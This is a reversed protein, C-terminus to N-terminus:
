GYGIVLLVGNQEQYLVAGEGGESVDTHLVYPGRPNPYAMVPASVLCKILKELASQHTSKWSVPNNGGLQKGTSTSKVKGGTELVKM